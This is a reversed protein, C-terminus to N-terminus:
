FMEFNDAGHRNWSLMPWTMHRMRFYVDLGYISIQRPFPWINANKIYKSFSERWEFDDAWLFKEPIQLGDKQSEVVLLKIWKFTECM